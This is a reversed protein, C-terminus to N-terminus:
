YAPHKARDRLQKIQPEVAPADTRDWAASFALAVLLWTIPQFTANSFLSNLLVVVLLQGAITRCTLVALAILLIIFPLAMLKGDVWLALLWNSSVANVTDAADGSNYSGWIGVRGNASLGDGNWPAANAMKWLRDIQRVRAQGSIDHSGVSFTGQLRRIFDEAFLPNGVLFALGAAVVLLVAPWKGRVKSKAEEKAKRRFLSTVIILAVAAGVAIWAARAFAFVFAAANVSICFTRLGAPLPLRWALILGLGAFLGLWDPESYLGIPRGVSSVHVHWIEIPVIKAVQLMGLSSSVTVVALLGYLMDKRDRETGKAIIMCASATLGLLQLALTPSTVLDGYLATVALLGSTVVLATIRKGSGRNLHGSPMVCWLLVLITFVHVRLVQVGVLGASIGVLVAMARDRHQYQALFVGAAFLLGLVAAIEPIGM